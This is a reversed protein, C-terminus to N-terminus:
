TFDVRYRWCTTKILNTSAVFFPLFLFSLCYFTKKFMTSLSIKKWREEEEQEEEKKEEEEEQEEEEKEEEITANREKRERESGQHKRKRRDGSTEQGM